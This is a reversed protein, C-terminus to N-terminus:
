RVPRRRRRHRLRLGLQVRNGGGRPEVSESAGPAITTVTSAVLALAIGLAADTLLHNGTVFVTLTMLVPHAAILRRAWGTMVVGRWAVALLFAWCVHISPVAAYPNFRVGLFSAGGHAGLGVTDGVDLGPVLRPPVAPLILFFPLALALAFLM